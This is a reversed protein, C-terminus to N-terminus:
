YNNICFLVTQKKKSYIITTWKSVVYHNKANSPNLSEANLSICRVSSEENPPHDSSYVFSHMGM